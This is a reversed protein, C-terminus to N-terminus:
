GAWGCRDQFRRKVSYRSASAAQGEPAMINQRLKEVEDTFWRPCLGACQILLHLHQQRDVSTPFLFHKAQNHTQRDQSESFDMVAALLVAQLLRKFPRGPDDIELPPEGDDEESDSERCRDSQLVLFLTAYSTGFPAV